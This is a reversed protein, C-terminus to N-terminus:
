SLKSFAEYYLRVTEEKERPKDGLNTKEIEFIYKANFGFFQLNKFYVDKNLLAFFKKLKAVIEANKDGSATQYRFTYLDSVANTMIEKGRDDAQALIANIALTFAGIDTGEISNLIHFILIPAANHLWNANVYYISIYAKFLSISTPSKNSILQNQFFVGITVLSDASYKGSDRMYDAITSDIASAMDESFLCNYFIKSTISVDIVNEQLTKLVDAYFSDVDVFSRLDFLKHTEVTYFKAAFYEIDIYHISQGLIEVIFRTKARTVCSNGYYANVMFFHILSLM